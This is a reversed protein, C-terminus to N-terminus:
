STVARESRHRDPVRPAHAARPRASPRLRPAARVAVGAGLGLDFAVLLRAPTTAFTTPIQSHGITAVDALGGAFFLFISVVLYLPMASDAGRKAMWGLALLGLGIGVLSYATEGLKPGTSATTANWLGIVDALESAVLAGLGITLAARWWRTRSL